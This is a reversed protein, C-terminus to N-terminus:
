SAPFFEPLLIKARNRVAEVEGEAIWRYPWRLRTGIPGWGGVTALFKDLAPNSYGRKQFPTICESFFALIREELQLAEDL